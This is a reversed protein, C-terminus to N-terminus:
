AQFRKQYTGYVSVLAESDDKGMKQYYEDAWLM